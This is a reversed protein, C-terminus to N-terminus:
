RYRCTPIMKTGSVEFELRSQWRIEAPYHQWLTSSLQASNLQARALEM